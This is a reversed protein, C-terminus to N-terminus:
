VLNANEVVNLVNRSLNIEPLTESSHSLPTRVSKLSWVWNPSFIRPPTRGINAQVPLGRVYPFDTMETQLLGLRALLQM